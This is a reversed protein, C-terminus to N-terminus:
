ALEKINDEILQYNPEEEYDLNRVYGMITKIQPPIEKLYLEYYLKMRFGLEETKADEWPLNGYKLFLIVYILSELDDRRSPLMRSETNLSMFNITGVRGKNYKFPRHKNNIMYKQVLGFDASYITINLPNDVNIEYQTMFNEPKIDIYLFGKKHIYKIFNLIQIGINCVIDLPVRKQPFQKRYQRLNNGLLQMVMYTYGNHFGYSYKPIKPIFPYNKLIKYISYEHGLTFSYDDDTLKCAYKNGKSDTVLYVVGCGGYNIYRVITWHDGVLYGLKFLIPTNYEIDKVNRNTIIM